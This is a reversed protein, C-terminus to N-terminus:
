LAVLLIVVGILAAVGAGLYNKLTVLWISVGFAVLALAVFLLWVVDNAEGRSLDALLALM